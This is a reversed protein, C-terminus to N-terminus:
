DAESRQTGTDNSTRPTDHDRTRGTTNSNVRVGDILVLTHRTETGRIFVGSTTGPGGNMTVQLAPVQRLAELVTHAGMLSLTDGEIVTVSSALQDAADTTRSASVVVPSLTVTGADNEPTAASVILPLTAACIAAGITSPKRM